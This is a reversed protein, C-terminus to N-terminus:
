PRATSDKPASQVRRMIRAREQEIRPLLGEWASTQAAGYALDFREFVPLPTDFIYIASAQQQVDLQQGSFNATYPIWGAPRYLQSRIIISVNDPDFHAGQRFAFFTVLALGPTPVGTRAIVSDLSSQHSGVVQHLVAYADSALLRLVREDLPMFRLEIDDLTLRVSLASQKLTGYGAPPLEGGAVGVPEQAAGSGAALALLALIGGSLRRM